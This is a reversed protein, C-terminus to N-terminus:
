SLKRNKLAEWKEQLEESLDGPLTEVSIKNEACFRRWLLFRADYQGTEDSVVNTIKKHQQKQRSETTKRNKESRLNKLLNDLKSMQDLLREFPSVLDSDSMGTRGFNWFEM